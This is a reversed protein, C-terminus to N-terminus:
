YRHSSYRLIIVAVYIYIYTYLYLCPIVSFSCICTSVCVAQSYYLMIRVDEDTNITGDTDGTTEKRKRDNRIGQQTVISTEPHKQALRQLHKKEKETM